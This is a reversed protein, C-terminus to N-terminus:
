NSLNFTINGIANSAAHMSKVVFSLIDFNVKAIKSFGKISKPVIFAQDEGSINKYQVKIDQDTDNVVTINRFINGALSPDPISVVTGAIAAGGTHYIGISKELCSM